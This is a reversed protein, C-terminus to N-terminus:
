ADLFGKSLKEMGMFAYKFWTNEKKALRIFIVMDLIFKNKLHLKQIMQFNFCWQLDQNSYIYLM